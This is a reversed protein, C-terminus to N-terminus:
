IGWSGMEKGMFYYLLFAFFCLGIAGLANLVNSRVTSNYEAKYNSRMAAFAQAAQEETLAYDSKLIGIIEELPKNDAVLLLAYQSALTIREDLPLDKYNM